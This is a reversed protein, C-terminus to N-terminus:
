GFFFCRQGWIGLNFWNISLCSFCCDDDSKCPLFLGGCAPQELGISTPGRTRSPPTPLRAIPRQTPARTPVKTTPVYNQVKTSNILLNSGVTINFLKGSTSDRVLYDTINSPTLYPNWQLYMAIVGVVHPVAVSTGSRYTTKSKDREDYTASLIAVSPAFIDVCTGYNSWTPRFLTVDMGGVTIGKEASAPSTTCADVNENGAATVVVIGADVCNNVADNFSTSYNSGLSLSVIMPTEPSLLKQFMVFDLGEIVKDVNGNGNKDLVKINILSVTRAMGYTKGGITAAVHTGHGKLDDCEEDLVANYGCTVRGPGFENHNAMIGTDFIFVNVGTGSYSYTYKKDVKGDVLDIGWPQGDKLNTTITPPRSVTTPVQLAYVPQNQLCRTHTPTNTGASSLL